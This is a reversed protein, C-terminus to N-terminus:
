APVRHKHPGTVRICSVSTIGSLTGAYGHADGENEYLAICPGGQAYEVHWVEVEKFRPLTALTQKAAERLLAFDSADVRIWQGDKVDVVGPGEIYAPMITRSIAKELKEPDIHSM